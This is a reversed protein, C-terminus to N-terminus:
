KKKRKPEEEPYTDPLPNIIVPQAINEDDAEAAEVGQLLKVVEEADLHKTVEDPQPLVEEETFSVRFPCAAIALQDNSTLVARRVRKGNVRTCNTSGLDRLFLTDDTKVIVCHLKSVSKHDLRLDCDERRGILTLDKILEISEGGDLPVLLTRM